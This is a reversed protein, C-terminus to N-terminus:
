LKALCMKIVYLANSMKDNKTLTATFCNVPDSPTLRDHLLLHSINNTHTQMRAKTITCTFRKKEAGWYIIRQPIDPEGIKKWMKEYVSEPFCKNFM